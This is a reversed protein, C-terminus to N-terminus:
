ATLAEISKDLAEDSAVDSAKKEKEEVKVKMIEEARVHDTEILLSRLVFQDEALSKELGGVMDAQFEFVLTGFYTSTFIDRAGKKSRSIPYALMMHRPDREFVVKGGGATVYGKLRAVHAGLEDESITDVLHYGLDYLAETSESKEAKTMPAVTAYRFLGPM